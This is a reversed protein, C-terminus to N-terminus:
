ARVQITAFLAMNAFTIISVRKILKTASSVDSSFLFVFVSVEIGWFLTSTVVWIIEAGNSKEKWVLWTLLIRV